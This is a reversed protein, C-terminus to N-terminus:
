MRRPLCATPHSAQEERGLLPRREIIPSSSVLDVTPPQDSEPLHQARSPWHSFVAPKRVPANPSAASARRISPPIHGHSGVGCRRGRRRSTLATRRRHDARASHSACTTERLRASPKREKGGARAEMSSLRRHALPRVGWGEFAKRASRRSAQHLKEPACARRETYPAAGSAIRRASLHSPASLMGAGLGVRVCDGYSRHEPQGNHQHSSTEPRTHLDLM